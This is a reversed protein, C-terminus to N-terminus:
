IAMLPEHFGEPFEPIGPEHGPMGGPIGAACHQLIAINGPLRDVHHIATIVSGMWGMM